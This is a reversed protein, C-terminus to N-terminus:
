LKSESLLEFFDDFFNRETIIFDMDRILDFEENTCKIYWNEIKDSPIIIRDGVQIHLAIDLDIDINLDNPWYDRRKCIYLKAKIM